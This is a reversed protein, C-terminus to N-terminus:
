WRHANAHCMCPSLSLLLPLKCRLSANQIPTLGNWVVAKHWPKCTAWLCVLAKSRRCAKVSLRKRWQHNKVCKRAPLHHMVHPASQENQASLASQVNAVNALNVAVKKLPATSHLKNAIKNKVRTQVKTPHSTLRVKKTLHVTPAIAANAATVATVTVHAASVVSAVTRMPKLHKATLWLHTTSHCHKQTAMKTWVPHANVVAKVKTVNAALHASAVAKARAVSVANQASVVHNANSVAPTPTAVRPASAVSKVHWVNTAHKQARKPKPKLHPTTTSPQKAKPTAVMKAKVVVVATAIKVHAVVTVVVRAVVVKPAVAKLV